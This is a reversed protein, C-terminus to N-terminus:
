HARLPLNTVRSNRVLYGIRVFQRRAEVGHQGYDIEDEIFTVDRSPAPRQQPGVQAGLRDPKSPENSHQHRWSRGAFNRAQNRQHQQVIRPALSTQIFGAIENDEFLLIAAKPILPLDALRQRQNCFRQNALGARKSQLRRYGSLM